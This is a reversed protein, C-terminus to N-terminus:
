TMQYTENIFGGRHNLKTPLSFEYCEDQILLSILIIHVNSQNSKHFVWLYENKNISFVRLM